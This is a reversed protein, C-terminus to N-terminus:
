SAGALEARIRRLHGHNLHLVQECFVPGGERNHVRRAAELRESLTAGTWHLTGDLLREVAITDVYGDDPMSRQDVPRRGRKASSARRCETCGCGHNFGRTTGHEYRGELYVPCPAPKKCATCTARPRHTM